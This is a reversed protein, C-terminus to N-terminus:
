FTVHPYLRRYKPIYNYCCSTLKKKKPPKGSVMKTTENKSLPPVKIEPPFTCQSLPNPALLYTNVATPLQSDSNSVSPISCLKKKRKSSFPLDVYAHTIESDLIIQYKVAYFFIHAISIVNKTPFVSLYTDEGIVTRVRGRLM